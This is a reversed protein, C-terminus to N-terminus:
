AGGSPSAIAQQCYAYLADYLPFALTLKQHDDPCTKHLGEAFARLGAAEPIITIDEPIDAGHVIRGLLHLAQDRLNYKQLIVEFTCKGEHHELEVGSIDFPIAHQQQAIELVQEAPVYLFQAQPDVFKKILWPCAVRDVKAGQRTIWKM